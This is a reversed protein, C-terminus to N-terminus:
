GSQAANLRGASCPRGRIGHSGEQARPVAGEQRHAEARGADERHGALNQPPVGRLPDARPSKRAGGSLGQLWGHVRADHRGAPSGRVARCPIPDAVEERSMPEPIPHTRLEAGPGELHPKTPVRRINLYEKHRWRETEPTRRIACAKVVGEESAVIVENNCAGRASDMVVLIPSENEGYESGFFCYDASAIPVELDHPARQPPKANRGLGWVCHPCWSEQIPVHNVMQEAVEQASPQGPDRAVQPAIEQEREADEQRAQKCGM